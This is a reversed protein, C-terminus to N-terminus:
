ISWVVFFLGSKWMISLSVNDSSWPIQRKYVDLHTYSVAISPLGLWVAVAGNFAGCALAIALVVIFAVVVGKTTGGMKNSILIYLIAYVGVQQGVSVDMFGMSYVFVSGLSIIAYPAVTQLVTTANYMLKDGSFILFLIVTIALGAYAAVDYIHTKLWSATKSKDKGM